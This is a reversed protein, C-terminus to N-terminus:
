AIIFLPQYISPVNLAKKAPVHGINFCCCMNKLNTKVRLGNKHDIKCTFKTGFKITLGLRKKQRKEFMHCTGHLLFGILLHVQVCQFLPLPLVRHFLGYFNM